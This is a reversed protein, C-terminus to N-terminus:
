QEAEIRLKAMNNDYIFVLCHEIILSYVPLICLHLYVLKTLVNALLCLKIYFSM